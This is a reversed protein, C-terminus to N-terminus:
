TFFADIDIKHERFYELATARSEECPWPLTRTAGRPESDASLPPSILLLLLAFVILVGADYWNQNLSVGSTRVGM